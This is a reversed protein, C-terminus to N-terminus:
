QKLLPAIKTAYIREWTFQERVSARLGFVKDTKLYNAMRKAVAKPNEEPSFYNVFEGGLKKLPLIDSCFTPIGAFGAELIPIGFGEEFSPFLLADALKYFDSIVEDPIFENTLDALFHASDKLGLKERLTKIKEFYQQNAPNHPGLPGTVVM